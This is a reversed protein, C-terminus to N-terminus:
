LEMQSLSSLLRTFIGALMLIFFGAFVLFLPGTAKVPLAAIKGEIQTQRERMVANALDQLQKSVEGGHEACQGLFKFAMQVQSIGCAVAVEDLAEQLQLGSGVLKEVYLFLETVPNLTNRAKAMDLINSICPWIDLSSSVGISIQEIVLPLYYLVEDQRKQIAKNLLSDPLQWGIAFGLIPAIIIFMMKGGVAVALILGVFLGVLPFMLQRREHREREEKTFYGARFLKDSLSTTAQEGFLATQIQGQKQKRSTKKLIDLDQDSMM